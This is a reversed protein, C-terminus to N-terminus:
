RRQPSRSHRRSGPRRAGSGPRASRLHPARLHSPLRTHRERWHPRRGQMGSTKAFSWNFQLCMSTRLRGTDVFPLIRTHVPHLVSLIPHPRLSRGTLALELSARRNSPHGQVECETRQEIGM